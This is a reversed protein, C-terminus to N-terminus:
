KMLEAKTNPIELIPARLSSAQAPKSGQDEQDRGGSHSSNCAHAGSGLQIERKQGPQRQVLIGSDRDRSYSPNCSPVMM